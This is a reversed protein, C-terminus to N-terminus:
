KIHVILYKTISWFQAPNTIELIANNNEHKIRYSNAPHQSLVTAKKTKLDVTNFERIDIKTFNRTNITKKKIDIGKEKLEKATGFFYYGSNLAADQEMVVNDVVGKEAQLNALNDNLVVISSDREAIVGDKEEVQKKLASIETELTTMQKKLANVRGQWQRAMESNENTLQEIKLKNEELLQNILNMNNKIRSAADAGGEAQDFTIYDQAVKIQELNNEVEEIIALYDNSQKETQSLVNMISDNSAKLNKFASSKEAIFNCSSLALGAFLSIIVLKKM